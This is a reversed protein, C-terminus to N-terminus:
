TIYKKIEMVSNLIYDPNMNSLDNKNGVGTLVGITYINAKKGASIDFPHDGCIIFKNKNLKFHNIIKIIGDPFPKPKDVDERTIVFDFYKQISNKNLIIRTAERGSQTFAAMKFKDKKLKELLDLIGDFLVSNKAAKKHTDRIIQLAGDKIQDLESQSYKDALLNLVEDIKELVPKFYMDIDYQTNFYNRIDERMQDWDAKMEVLTGELDFIIVEVKKLLKKLDKNM